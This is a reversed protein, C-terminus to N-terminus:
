KQRKKLEEFFEHLKVLIMAADSLSNLEIESQERLSLPNYQGQTTINVTVDLQYKMVSRQVYWGYESDLGYTNGGRSLPLLAARLAPVYIRRSVLVTGCLGPATLRTGQRWSARM